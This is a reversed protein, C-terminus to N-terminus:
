LGLAKKRFFRVDIEKKRKAVAVMDVSDEIDLSEVVAVFDGTTTDRDPPSM